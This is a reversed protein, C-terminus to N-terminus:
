QAILGDRSMYKVIVDAEALYYTYNAGSDGRQVFNFKSEIAWVADRSLVSYVETALVVSGKVELFQPEVYETLEVDWVNFYYTPRVNYTAQPNADKMSTESDVDVLHAVLLADSDLEELMAVFTQRTVPTNTDMLSTSAVAHTGIESLNQVIDKELRMRNDFSSFLAVILINDFPADASEPLDLTRTIQSGTSCGALAITVGAVLLM